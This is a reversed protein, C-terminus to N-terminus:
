KSAEASNNKDLCLPQLRCHKRDVPELDQSLTTTKSLNSLFGVVVDRDSLSVNFPNKSCKMKQVRRISKDLEESQSYVCIKM